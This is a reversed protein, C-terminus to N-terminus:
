RFYELSEWHCFIEWILRFGICDWCMYKSYNYCGIYRWFRTISLFPAPICLAEHCIAMVIPSTFTSSVVIYCLFDLFNLRWMWEKSLLKNEFSSVWGLLLINVRKSLPVLSAIREILVWKQFNGGNWCWSSSCGELVYVQLPCVWVGDPSTRVSM